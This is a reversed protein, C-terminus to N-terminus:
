YPALPFQKFSMMVFIASQEFIHLLLIIVVQVVVVVNEVCLFTYRVLYNIKLVVVIWASISFMPKTM